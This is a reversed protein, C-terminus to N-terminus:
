RVEELNASLGFDTMDKGDVKRSKAFDNKVTKFAPSNEFETVFSFVRSMLESTGKLAVKGEADVSMENLYMERPLITELQTLALLVHGKQSAFSRIRENQDAITMLREAESNKASFNKDLSKIYSNKLYANAVFVGLFLVAIVMVLGGATFIQTARSRFNSATRLDDPTFDMALGSLTAASLLIADTPSQFLETGSHRTSASLPVIDAAHVTETPVGCASKVETGLQTLETRDPGLVLVKGLARGPEASLFAETSKQVEAALERRSAAHQLQKLGIGISRVFFPKSKCLVMFDSHEADVMVVGTVDADGVLRAQVLGQAVGEFAVRIQSVQVGASQLVELHKQINGLSIITLLTKTYRELIEELNLHSCVIEEKSYPTHRSAQLKVIADIEQPDFSPVEVSKTIAYKSTIVVTAQHTGAKVAALGRAIEEVIGAEDLSALDRYFLNQVESKGGVLRVSAMKLSVGDLYVLLQDPQFFSFNSM